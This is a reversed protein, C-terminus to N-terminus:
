GFPYLMRNRPGLWNKQRDNQELVGHECQRYHDGHGDHLNQVHRFVSALKEWRVEDEGESTSSPVWNLHNTLSETWKSWLSLNRRCFQSVIHLVTNNQPSTYVTVGHLCECYTRTNHFQCLHTYVNVVHFCKNHFVDDSFLCDMLSGGDMAFSSTYSVISCVVFVHVLVRLM